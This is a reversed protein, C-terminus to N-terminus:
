VTLTRESYFNESKYIDYDYDQWVWDELRTLNIRVENDQNTEISNLMLQSICM